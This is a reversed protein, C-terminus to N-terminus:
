PTLFDIVLDGVTRGLQLGDDDDSKFHIGGYLRSMAADNAMEDLQTQAQPFFHGLM